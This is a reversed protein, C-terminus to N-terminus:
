RGKRGRCVFARVKQEYVSADLAPYRLLEARTREFHSELDELAVLGRAVMESTDALDRSHGREIKALAQSVPDYHFFDVDGHREIFVSREIWGPAPPVFQDPAALEVNVDLENKIAALAEFAGEPEPSMKLDIDITTARWGVLVATGGGTLYVRGPGRCRQGLAQMFRRVKNADAVARM